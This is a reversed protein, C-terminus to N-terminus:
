KKKKFAILAVAASVALVGLVSLTIILRKQASVTKEKEPVSTTEVDSSNSAAKATVEGNEVEFAIPKYASDSADGQVELLVPTTGSWGPAVTFTVDVLSGAATVRTAHIFAGKLAHSDDATKFNPNLTAFGDVAADGPTNSKYLLKDNDYKLIFDIASLNSSASINISVTVEDGSSGKANTVTLKMPSEASVIIPASFMVATICVALLVSITKKAIGKM